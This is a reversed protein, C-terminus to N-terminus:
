SPQQSVFCFQPFLPAPPTLVPPSHPWQPLLTAMELISISSGYSWCDVESHTHCFKFCLGSAIDVCEHGNPVQLSQPQLHLLGAMNSHDSFVSHLVLWSPPARVCNVSLALPAVLAILCNSIDLAQNAATESPPKHISDLLKPTRNQKSPNGQMAGASRLGGPNVPIGGCLM